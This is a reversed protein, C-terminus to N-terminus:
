QPSTEMEIVEMKLHDIDFMESPPLERTGLFVFYFVLFFFFRCFPLYVHLHRFDGSKITVDDTVPHNEVDM